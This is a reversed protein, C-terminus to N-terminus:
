CRCPPGLSVALCLHRCGQRLNWRLPGLVLPPEASLPATMRCGVATIQALVDWEVAQMTATATPSARTWREPRWLHDRSQRSPFQNIISWAVPLARLFWQRIQKQKQGLDYLLVVLMFVATCFGFSVQKQEKFWRGM